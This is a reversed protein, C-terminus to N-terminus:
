RKAHSTAVAHCAKVLEPLVVANPTDMSITEFSAAKGDKNKWLTVSGSAFQPIFIKDHWSVAERGGFLKSRSYGERTFEVRGIRVTEGNAFISRVLKEVIHPEIVHQSIGALQAWVDKKKQNGIYLTTGFSVKITESPSAVMYSYSQSIPVLNISQSIAHYSITSADKYYITRGDYTVHDSKFIITGGGFTGPIEIALTNDREYSINKEIQDQDTKLLARLSETGAIKVALQLLKASTDLDNHNNHIDLV